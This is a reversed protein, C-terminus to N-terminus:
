DFFLWIGLELYCIITLLSNWNEFGKSDIFAQLQSFQTKLNTSIQTKSNPIQLYLWQSVFLDIIM